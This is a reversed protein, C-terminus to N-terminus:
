SHELPPLRNLVFRACRRSPLLTPRSTRTSSATRRSSSAISRTSASLEKSSTASHSTRDNPRRTEDRQASLSFSVDIATKQNHIAALQADIEGKEQEFNAIDQEVARYQEQLNRRAALRSLAVTLPARRRSAPPPRVQDTGHRRSQLASSGELSSRRQNDVQQQQQLETASTLSAREIEVPAPPPFTCTDWSSYIRVTRRSSMALTPAFSTM